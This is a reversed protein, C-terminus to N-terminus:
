IFQKFITLPEAAKLLKNSATKQYQLREMLDHYMQEMSGYVNVNFSEVVGYLHSYIQIINM